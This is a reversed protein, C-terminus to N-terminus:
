DHMKQYDSFLVYFLLRTQKSLFCFVYKAHDGYAFKYFPYFYVGQIFWILMFHVRDTSIPHIKTAVLPTKHENERGSHFM